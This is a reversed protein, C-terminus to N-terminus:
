CPYGCSPPPKLYKTGGKKTFNGNQSINKLKSIPLRFGQWEQHDWMCGKFAGFVFTSLVASGKSPMAPHNHLHRPTKKQQWTNLIRKERLM